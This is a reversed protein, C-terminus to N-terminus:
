KKRAKEINIDIERKLIRAQRAKAKEFEVAFTPLDVYKQHTESLSGLELTSLTKLQEKAVVVRALIAGDSKGSM